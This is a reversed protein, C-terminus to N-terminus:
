DYTVETRTQFAESINDPLSAKVLAKEITKGTNVHLAFYNHLYEQNKAIKETYEYIDEFEEKFLKKMLEIDGESMFGFLATTINSRIADVYTDMITNTNEFIALTNFLLWVNKNDSRSGTVRESIYKIVPLNGKVRQLEEYVDESFMGARKLVLSKKNNLFSMMAINMADRVPDEKTDENKNMNYIVLPSTLVKRLTIENKLMDEYMGDEMFMSCRNAVLKCLKRQEDTYSKSTSLDVMIPILMDLKWSATYKFTEPRKPSVGHQSFLKLIADNLIVELDVLNGEGPQLNTMIILLTKAGDMASKFLPIALEKDVMGIDDLRLPNVFSPDSTSMNIVVGKCFDLLPTYERGKWDMVNVHHNLALMSLVLGCTMYTKGHGSKAVLIAVQATSAETFNFCVPLKTVYNIGFLIGSGGVLGQADFPSFATLNETSMLMSNVNEINETKFGAPGYNRMYKSLSGTIEQLYLGYQMTSTRMRKEILDFKVKDDVIVEVFYNCYGFQVGVKYKDFVYMYSNVENELNKLTAENVRIRQGTMPDRLTSGTMKKTRSLGEFIEKYVDYSAVRSEMYRRYKDTDPAEETHELHMNVIVKVGKMDKAIEQRFFQTINENFETPVGRVCWVKKFGRQTIISHYTPKISMASMKEKRILAGGTLWNAIYEAYLNGLFSM